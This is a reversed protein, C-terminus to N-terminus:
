VRSSEPRGGERVDLAEAAPDFVLEIGVVLIGQSAERGRELWGRVAPLGRELMLRNAVHRRGRLVPYVTLEWREDYWGAEILFDASGLGPKSAPHYAARVITCPSGEALVRRFRTASGDPASAFSLSLREVHPADSLAEGIEGAKVPYSLDRALRARYRTPIMAEGERGGDIDDARRGSATEFM